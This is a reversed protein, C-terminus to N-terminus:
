RMARAVRHYVMAARAALRGRVRSMLINPLEDGRRLVFDDPKMRHIRSSEQRNETFLLLYSMTQKSM